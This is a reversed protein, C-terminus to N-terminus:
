KYEDLLMQVEEEIDIKVLEWVKGRYCYPTFDDEAISFDLCAKLLEQKTAEYPNRQAYFGLM